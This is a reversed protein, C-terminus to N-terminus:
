SSIEPPVYGWQADLWALRGEFWHMIYAYNSVPNSGWNTMEAQLAVPSMPDLINRIISSVHGPTLTSARLAAYRKKIDGAYYARFVQWFNDSDSMFGIRDPASQDMDLWDAVIGLIQDMDYAFVHWIGSTATADWAGLYLNNHWADYSGVAECFVLYDIWSEVNLYQWANAFTDSGSVVNATYQLLRAFPQFVPTGTINDGENYGKIVPSNSFDWDSTDNPTTWLGSVGHNAQVLYHCPNHKDMLYSDTSNKQRSIWVGMLTENHWWEIPMGDCGFLPAGGAQGYQNRYVWEPAIRDHPSSRNQRIDRWLRYGTVDRVMLRDRYIGTNMNGYGKLDLRNTALWSGFKLQMPTGADSKLTLRYGYKTEFASTQGSIVISATGNALMADGSFYGWDVSTPIKNVNDTPLTGVTVLRENGTLPPLSVLVRRANVTQASQSLANTM